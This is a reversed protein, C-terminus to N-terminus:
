KREKLLDAAARWLRWTDMLGPDLAVHDLGRPAHLSANPVEGALAEAHSFPIINDRVGHILIVRLPFGSLDRRALDLAAFEDRYERPLAAIREPVQDPDDNDLLLFLARAEESLREVDDSVDADPRHRRTRAISRLPERDAEAAQDALAGLLIWRGEPRPTYPPTEGTLPDYGTTLFTIWGELDYYGGIIFLFDAHEGVAGESAAIVVPGSMLSLTALGTPLGASGERELMHQQAARVDEITESGWDLEMLAQVDPALVRFGTRALSRALDQLRPDRRGEETFGHILVLNGRPEEAPRYLDAEVERAGNARLEYTVTEREPHGARRSLWTEQGAPAQLDALLLAAEYQRELPACGTLLAGSLALVVVPAIWRKRRDTM